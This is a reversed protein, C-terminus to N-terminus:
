APDVPHRIVFTKASKFGSTQIAKILEREFHAPFVRAITAGAVPYFKFRPTYKAGGVFILVPTIDGGATKAYIGSALHQTKDGHKWSGAGVRSEGKRAYFYRVKARKARSRKSNTANQSAGALNFAGLQSIIQVIQGRSMNGYSDLKAGQGPVAREGRYLVGRQLLLQEFRKLPREGGEIQPLLYHPRTGFDDKFFVRAELRAKTAPSLFLSNLTYPTPRDFTRQMERRLDAKVDQATRTLAVATAFRAQKGIRDLAVRVEPFNAKINFQM